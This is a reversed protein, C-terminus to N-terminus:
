LCGISIEKPDFVPEDKKPKARNAAVVRLMETVSENTNEFTIEKKFHERLFDEKMVLLEHAASRSIFEVFTFDLEVSEEDTNDVAKRIIDIIDRSSIIPATIQGINITSKMKEM